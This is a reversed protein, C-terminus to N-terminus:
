PFRNRFEQESLEKGKDLNNLETNSLNTNSTDGQFRVIKSQKDFFTKLLQVVPNSKKKNRRIMLDEETKKLNQYMLKLKTLKEKSNGKKMQQKLEHMNYTPTKKNKTDIQKEFDERSDNDIIYVENDFLGVRPNQIQRGYIDDVIEMQDRTEKLKQYMLKLEKSNGKKMQQKLEHMNYTPTKEQNPNISKEFDERSDNDIIYVETDFGVIPNQIQRGFLDVTQRQDRKRKNARRLTKMKEGRTRAESSEVEDNKHFLEKVHNNIKEKTEPDTLYSHLEHTFAQVHKKKEENYILLMEEYTLPLGSEKKKKIKSIKSFDDRKKKEEAEKKKEQETLEVPADQAQINIQQTNRRQRQRNIRQTWLAQINRRATAANQRQRRNRQNRQRIREFFNPDFSEIYQRLSLSGEEEEMLGPTRNKEFKVVIADENTDTRYGLPGSIIPHNYVFRMRLYYVELNTRDIYYYVHYRNPNFDSLTFSQSDSSIINRGLNRHYYWRERSIDYFIFINMQNLDEPPVSQRIRSQRQTNQRQTSQQSM